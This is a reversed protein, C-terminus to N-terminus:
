LNDIVDYDDSWEGGSPLLIVDLGSDLIVKCRGSSADCYIVVGTLGEWTGRTIKIRQGEKTCYAM